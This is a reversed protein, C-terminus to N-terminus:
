VNINAEFEIILRSSFSITIDLCFPTVSISNITATPITPIKDAM